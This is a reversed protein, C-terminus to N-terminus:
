LHAPSQLEVPLSVTEARHQNNVHVIQLKVGASEADHSPFSLLSRYNNACFTSCTFGRSCRDTGPHQGEESRSDHKREWMRSGATTEQAASGGTILQRNNKNCDTFSHLQVLLPRWLVESLRREGDGLLGVTRGCAPLKWREGGGRSVAGGSALSWVGASLVGVGTLCFLTQVRNNIISSLLHSRAWRFYIKIILEIVKHKVNMIIWIEKHEVQLCVCYSVVNNEHRYKM